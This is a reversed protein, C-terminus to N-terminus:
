GRGRLRHLEERERRRRHRRLRWLAALAVTLASGLLMAGFVVAALSVGVSWVTWEVDVQETNQAVFVLFAAAALLTVVVSASVGIARERREPEAPPPPAPPQEALVPENGPEDM